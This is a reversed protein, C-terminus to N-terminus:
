LNELYDIVEDIMDIIMEHQSYIMPDYNSQKMFEIKQKLIGKYEILPAILEKAKLEKVSNIIEIGFLTGQDRLIEGHLFDITNRGGIKGLSNIIKFKLREGYGPYLKDAENYLNILQEELIVIKKEGTIQIAEEVIIPSKDQLADRLMELPTFSENLKLYDSDPPVIESFASRLAEKRIITNDSNYFDSVIISDTIQKSCIKTLENAYTELILLSFILNIILHKM